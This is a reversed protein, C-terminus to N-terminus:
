QELKVSPYWFATLIIIELSPSPLFATVLSLLIPQTTVGLSLHYATVFDIQLSTFLLM